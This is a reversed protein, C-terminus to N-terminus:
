IWKGDIIQLYVGLVLLILIQTVTQSVIIFTIGQNIADVAYMDMRHYMRHIKYFKDETVRIQRKTGKLNIYNVKKEEMLHSSVLNVTEELKKKIIM